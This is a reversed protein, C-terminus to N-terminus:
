RGGARAQPPPFAGRIQEFNHAARLLASDEGRRAVFQVGVPLGRAFGAPVTIAPHGTFNFPATERVTSYGEHRLPDLTQALGELHDVPEHYRPSVMGVTPLALVHVGDLAQDYQQQFSPRSARARSYISSGYEQFAFGASLLKLKLRPPLKDADNATLRDLARILSEPFFSSSGVALFRSDRLLRAGLESLVRYPLVAVGHLPVSRPLLEAGAEALTSLASRVVARVDEDIPPLFGERLVGVKLGQPGHDLVALYRAPDEVFADLGDAPWRPDVEDWGAIGTLVRAVEEVSRGMPGVHDLVSDSGVIGTHPVLGHTPKLGIVGCWSAPLRVSGGQDGGLAVDCEGTAVAAACGSSSGGTLCDAEYPNPVRGYDGVGGLGFGGCSFEEMNAKGVITAGEALLREVIVADFDAVYGDFAHSGFCMPLDRVPIHDKLGVRLGSLLGSERSRFESRCLWIHEAEDNASPWRWERAEGFDGARSGAPAGVRSDMFEEFHALERHVAALYLPREDASLSLGIQAAVVELQYDDPYHVM